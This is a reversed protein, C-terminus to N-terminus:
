KKYLNVVAQWELLVYRNFTLLDKMLGELRQNKWQLEQLLREFHAITKEDM